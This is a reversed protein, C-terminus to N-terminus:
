SFRLAPDNALDAGRIVARDHRYDQKLVWPERDGAKPLSAAARQVYGADFDMFPREAVSPDPVVEVVRQGTTDLHRLVRNVFEAVLDAKLTWSANTYGITFAANPVGTLMLARYAMQETLDVAEGDVSMQVGGMALLKLGTATVVVDATLERGSALRIGTPTFTEIHDTVVEAAGSSIAKFLDGDPVVCLRQDWPDYPPNFHTDVAYGSPLLAKNSARVLRRVLRPFRQSTRYLLSQQAVNKRRIARYAREPSLRKKLLQAIPDVRGLSLVYTPTRQLMTVRQAGSAVLAPVLTIATAGSGIVVIERGSHDLDAPWQQPHVVTGTYKSLGPLDPLYGAETDYYGSCIWLFSASLTRPGEPTDSRVTWRASARDFAASRVQHSYRIHQEVGYEAATERVYRLISPGDALAQDDTWPKFSYGLTYMDSDSRVGPYTFLSWTGGSEARKELVAYSRGPHERVVSSAAGIGSLGAGIIIVDVHEVAGEPDTTSTADVSPLSQGTMETM